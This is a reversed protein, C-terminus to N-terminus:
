IAFTIRGFHYLLCSCIAESFTQHRQDVKCFLYRVCSYAPVKDFPILDNTVYRSVFYIKKPLFPPFSTSGLKRLMLFVVM